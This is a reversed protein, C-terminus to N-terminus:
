EVTFTGVLVKHETKHLRLTQQKIQENRKGWNKIFYVTVTTPGILTQENSGFYNAEVKYKGKLPSKIMFEEPGRGGTMDESIRGGSKTNKNGFYCKEGNPETVMLDMDSNDTDWSLVVRVGASV